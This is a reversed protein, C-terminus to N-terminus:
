FALAREGGALECVGGNPDGGTRLVDAADPERYVGTMEVDVMRLIARDLKTVFYCPVSPEKHESGVGSDDTLFVYRGGTLQAAERMSLETLEDVGSSAVPYVHVGRARAGRVGDAQERAREPHHPADAVWFALKAAEDGRWSLANARALARDSAEPFDGGGGASEAALLQRFEGADARFDFWRTVYEDTADKYVVLAWRQEAGPYRADISAVLADFESQLYTLEDGMSGTTDVVLAVDLKARAPGPAAFTAHAAEHEEDSFRLLGPPEAASVEARYALFRAFNRNDDWTGTTLTGPAVGPTQGDVPGYGTSAGKAAGSEPAGASAKDDSAAGDGSEDRRPTGPEEGDGPGYAPTRHSADAGCGALAFAGFLACLTSRLPLTM